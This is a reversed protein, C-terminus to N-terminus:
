ADNGLEDCPRWEADFDNVGALGCAPCVAPSNDVVLRQTRDCVFWGGCPWGCHACIGRWDIRVMGTM